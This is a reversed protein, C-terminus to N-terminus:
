LALSAEVMQRSAVLRLQNKGVNDHGAPDAADLKGSLDAVAKGFERDQEGGTVALLDGAVVAKRAAFVRRVPFRQDVGQLLQQFLLQHDSADEARGGARREHLALFQRRNTPGYTRFKPQAARCLGPATGSAAPASSRFMSATFGRQTSASIKRKIEATLAPYGFKEQYEPTIEFARFAQIQDQPSGFWICDTGWLIRDEGFTALLKGIVHAAEDPRGMFYRWCAGLEAYVNGGNRPLGADRHAKILRDVGGGAPDYAGEKCARSSARIISWSPSTPIPRPRAGM